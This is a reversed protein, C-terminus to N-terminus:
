GDSGEAKVFPEGSSAAEDLAADVQKRTMLRKGKPVDLEPLYPDGTAPEGANLAALQAKLVAALHAEPTAEECVDVVGASGHVSLHHLAEDLVNFDIRHGNDFHVTVRSM